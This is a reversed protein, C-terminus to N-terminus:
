HNYGKQQLIRIAKKVSYTGWPIDHRLFVVVQFLVLSPFWVRQACMLSFCLCSSSDGSGASMQVVRSRMALLMVRDIGLPVLSGPLGRAWSSSFGCRSRYSIQQLLAIRGLDVQAAILSVHALSCAHTIVFSQGTRSSYFAAAAAM